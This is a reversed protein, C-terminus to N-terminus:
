CWCWCLFRVAKDDKDWIARAIAYRTGDESITKVRFGFALPDKELQTAHRKLEKRDSEALPPFGHAMILEDVEEVKRVKTDPFREVFQEWRQAILMEIEEVMNDFHHPPIKVFRKLAEYTGGNLCQSVAMKREYLPSRDTFFGM